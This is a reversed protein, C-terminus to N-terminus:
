WCCALGGESPGYGWSRSHPCMPIAGFLLLMLIILLITEMANYRRICAWIIIRNSEARPGSRPSATIGSSTQTVAGATVPAQGTNTPLAKGPPGSPKADIGDM